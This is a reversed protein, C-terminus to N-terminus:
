GGHGKTRVMFCRVHSPTWAEVRHVQFEDDGSSWGNPRVRDGERVGVANEVFMVHTTRVELGVERRATDGDAPQILATPTAASAWSATPNGSDNYTPTNRVVTVTSGWVSLLATADDAMAM